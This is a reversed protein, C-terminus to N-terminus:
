VMRQNLYQQYKLYKRELYPAKALNKYMFNLIKLGNNNRYILRYAYAEYFQISTELGLILNLKDKLSSLYNASGCTFIVSLRLSEKSKGVYICGDGDFYGRLFFSLYKNPIQPFTMILSKRSQLGLTALDTFMKKSGIRLTYQSSRLYQKGRIYMLGPKRIYINHKSGLADRIQYIIQKDKSTITIYCTRSSKNANILAGDAFLYGLVYAMPYSWTKFFNHNFKRRNHGGRPDIDM